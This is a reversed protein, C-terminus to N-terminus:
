RRTGVGLIPEVDNVSSLMLSETPTPNTEEKQFEIFAPYDYTQPFSGYFENGVYVDHRLSVKVSAYQIMEATIISSGVNSDTLKLTQREMGTKGRYYIEVEAGTMDDRKDVTARILYQSLAPLLLAGGVDLLAEGLGLITSSAPTVMAGVETPALDMLRKWSYLMTIMRSRSYDGGVAKMRSALEDIEAETIYVDRSSSM